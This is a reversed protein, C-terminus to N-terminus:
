RGLKKVLNNELEMRKKMLLAYKSVLKQDEAAMSLKCSLSTKDLDKYMCSMPM